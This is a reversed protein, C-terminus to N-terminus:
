LLRSLLSKLWVAHAPLFRLIAYIGVAILFILVGSIRLMKRSRDSSHVPAAAVPKASQEDAPATQLSQADARAPRREQEAEIWQLVPRLSERIEDRTEADLAASLELWRQRLHLGRQIDGAIMAAEMDGALVRAADIAQRAHQLEAARRLQERLDAPLPTVWTANALEAHLKSMAGNDNASLADAAAERLEDFRSSELLHIEERWCANGPDSQVLALLVEVRQRVPAKGLSLVRHQALLPALSKEMAAAKELEALCEVALAAPKALSNAACIQAWENAEPFSLAATLSFLNPQCEALHVAESRLGKRMFEACRRLRENAERCFMAYNAALDPLEDSWTLESAALCARIADSVKQYDSM